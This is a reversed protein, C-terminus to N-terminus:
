VRPRLVARQSLGPDRRVARPFRRERDRQQGRAGDRQALDLGAVADAPPELAPGVLLAALDQDPVVRVAGDGAERRLAEVDARPDVFVATRRVEDVVAEDDDGVRGATQVADDGRTLELRERGLPGPAVGVHDQVPGVVPEDRNALVVLLRREPAVALGLVRDDGDVERAAPYRDEDAPGVEVRRRAKGWAARPERPELPAV